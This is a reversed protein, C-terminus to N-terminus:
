KPSGGSLSRLVASFHRRCEEPPIIGSRSGNKAGATIPRSSRNHGRPHKPPIAKRDLTTLDYRADERPDRVHSSTTKALAIPSVPAQQVAPSNPVSPNTPEPPPESTPVSTSQVETAEAISVTEPSTQPVNTTTASFPQITVLVPPAQHTPATPPPGGVCAAVDCTLGVKGSRRSSVFYQALDILRDQFLDYVALAKEKVLVTSVGEFKKALKFSSMAAEAIGSAVDEPGVRECLSEVLPISKRPDGLNLLVDYYSEALGLDLYDWVSKKTVPGLQAIMGLKNIVDRVHGGHFDIVNLVAEPDYEVGEQRLIHEMRVLTVDRPVPRVQYPECRSYIAGRVKHGETTCFIALLKKEELPKLLADQSDRSMRHCEDFLVIRKVAGEISFPLEEVISRVTDITGSSAADLERFAIATDSLIARCNDCTNCPEQDAGLDQCLIARAMIRGLTTKGTGHSGSFIYSMEAANGRSLRAKLVEVIADQGIVDSFRLPRYKQDWAFSM